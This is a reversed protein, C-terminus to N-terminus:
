DRIKDLEQQRIFEAHEKIIETYPHNYEDGLGVSFMLEEVADEKDEPFIFEDYVTLMPIDWALCGYHQVEHTINAEIWSFHGGFQKGQGLFGAIHINAEKVMRQVGKIGGHNNLAHNHHEVEEPEAENEYYNNIAKKFGTQSTNLMINLYQKVVDRELGLVEYPQVQVKVDKRKVGTLLEYMISFVSATYDLSKTPKGNILIKDRKEKPFSMYPDYARGHFRLDGCNDYAVYRRTLHMPTLSEGECTIAQQNLYDSIESMIKEIRLSYRDEDYPVHKGEKRHWIYSQEQEELEKEVLGLSGILELLEDNAKFKSMYPLHDLKPADKYSDGVSNEVLGKEQLKDVVNYITKNSIGFPNLKEPLATEHRRSYLMEASKYKAVNCLLIKLARKGKTQNIDLGLSEPEIDIRSDLHLNLFPM